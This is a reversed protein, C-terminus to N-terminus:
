IPQAKEQPSETQGQSQNVPEEEPSELAEADLVDDTSSATTSATTSANVAEPVSDSPVLPSKGQGVLGGNVVGTQTQQVPVTKLREQEEPTANQKRSAIVSGVDISGADTYGIGVGAGILLLCLIFLAFGVKSGSRGSTPRPATASQTRTPAKRTATVSTKRAATKRPAAKSATKRVAKRAVTKRVAKEPM